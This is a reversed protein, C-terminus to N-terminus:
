LTKCYKAIVCVINDTNDILVGVLWTGKTAKSKVTDCIDYIM